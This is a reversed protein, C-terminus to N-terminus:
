PLKSYFVYIDVRGETANNLFAGGSNIEAVISNGSRLTDLGDGQLPYTGTVTGLPTYLVNLASYYKFPDSGIGVGVTYFTFGNGNFATDVALYTSHVVIDSTLTDLNVINTNGFTSFDSYSKTFKVWTVPPPKIPGFSNVVTNDNPMISTKKCGALVIIM